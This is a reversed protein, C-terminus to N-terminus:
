KYTRQPATRMTEMGQFNITVDCQETYEVIASDTLEVRHVSSSGFYGSDNRQINSFNTADLRVWKIEKMDTLNVRTMYCHGGQSSRSFLSVINPTEGEFLGITVDNGSVNIKTTEGTACDEVYIPASTPNNSDGKPTYILRNAAYQRIVYNREKLKEAKADVAASYDVITDQSVALTDVFDIPKANNGCSILVASLTLAIFYIFPQKM